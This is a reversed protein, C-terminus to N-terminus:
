TSSAGRIAAAVRARNQERSARLRELVSMTEVPQAVTLVPVEDVSEAEGVEEAVPVIPAEETVPEPEAEPEAAPQAVFTPPAVPAPVTEVLEQLLGIATCAGLFRLVTEDDAGTMDALERPSAPHQTLWAAM